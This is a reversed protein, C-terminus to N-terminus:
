GALARSREANHNTSGSMFENYIELEEATPQYFRRNLKPRHKHIFVKEVAVLMEKPCPLALVRDFQKGDSSHRRNRWWLWDTRGIYQLEKDIYLFYVHSKDFMHTVDIALAIGPTLANSVGPSHSIKRLISRLVRPM